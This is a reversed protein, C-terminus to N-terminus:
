QCDDGVKPLWLIDIPNHPNGM